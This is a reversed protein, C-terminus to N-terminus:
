NRAAGFTASKGSTRDLGADETAEDESIHFEYTKGEYQVTFVTDFQMASLAAILIVSPLM